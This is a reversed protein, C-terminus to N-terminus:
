TKLMFIFFFILTNKDSFKRTKPTFNDVYKFLRTKTILYIKYFIVASTLTIQVGSPIRSEYEFCGFFLIKYINVESNGSNFIKVLEPM